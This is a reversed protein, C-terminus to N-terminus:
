RTSSADRKATTPSCGPAGVNWHVPVQDLYANEAAFDSWDLRINVEAGGARRSTIVTM